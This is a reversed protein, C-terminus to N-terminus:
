WPSCWGGGWACRSAGVARLSSPPADSGEEPAARWYAKRSHRTAARLGVHIERGYVVRDGIRPAPDLDRPQEFGLEVRRDGSAAQLAAVETDSRSFAVIRDDNLPLPVDSGGCWDLRAHLLDVAAPLQIESEM